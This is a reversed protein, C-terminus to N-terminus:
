RLVRATFPAGGYLRGAKFATDYNKLDISMGSFLQGYLYFNSDTGLLFRFPDNGYEVPANATRFKKLDGSTNFTAIIINDMDRLSDKAFYWRKAKRNKYNYRENVSLVHLENNKSFVMDNIFADPTIAKKIKGKNDFFCIVNNKRNTSDYKVGFVKNTNQATFGIAINNQNATVCHIRGKCQSTTVWNLTGSSSYSAVFAEEPTSRNNPDYSTPAMKVIKKGFEAGYRYSGVIIINGMEDIALRCQEASHSCCTAERYSIADAWIAKGNIDLMLIFDGGGNGEIANLEKTIKGKEASGALMLNGNPHFLFENIELDADISLDCWSIKKYDGNIDLTALYYGPKILSDEYIEPIAAVENGNDDEDFSEALLLLYTEGNKNCAIGCLKSYQSHITRYWNLKGNANFCVVYNSKGHVYKEITMGSADFLGQEGNLYSLQESEGGVVMCNNKGLSAYDWNLSVQQGSCAWNLQQASGNM